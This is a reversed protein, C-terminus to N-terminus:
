TSSRFSKSQLVYALYLLRFLAICLIISAKAREFVPIRPGFGVRPVSIPGHKSETDVNHQTLLPKTIPQYL